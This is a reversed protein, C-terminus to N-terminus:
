GMESTLVVKYHNRKNTNVSFFRSGGFPIHGIEQQYVGAIASFWVQTEHYKSVSTDSHKNYWIPPTEPENVIRYQLRLNNRPVCVFSM